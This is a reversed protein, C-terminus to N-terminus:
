KLNSKNTICIVVQGLESMILQFYNKDQNNKKTYIKIINEM